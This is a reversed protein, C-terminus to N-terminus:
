RLFHRDPFGARGTIGRRCPGIDDPKTFHGIVHLPNEIRDLGTIKKRRDPRRTLNVRSGAKDLFRPHRPRRRDFKVQPVAIHGVRELLM